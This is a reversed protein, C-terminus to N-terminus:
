PTFATEPPLRRGGPQHTGGRPSPSTRPHLSDSRRQAPGPSNPRKTRQLSGRSDGGTVHPGLGRQASGPVEYAHRTISRVVRLAHKTMETKHTLFGLSMCCTAPGSRSRSDLDAQRRLGLGQTHTTPPWGTISGEKEPRQSLSRKGMPYLRPSVMSEPLRGKRLCRVWVQSVAGNTQSLSACPCVDGKGRLAM